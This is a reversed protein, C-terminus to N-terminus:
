YNIEKLWTKLAVVTKKSVIKEISLRHYVNLLNQTLTQKPNIAKITTFVTKETDVYMPVELEFDKMYDHPNRKQMVSAPGFGAHYGLQWMLPQAVFGKLIDVFRISVFPPLFLLPFLEKTFFTNQTNIPCIVNEGLVLPSNKAFSIKKNITLRYIADVDPEEDALFQWIGIKQKKIEIRVKKKELLKNLPYGRPWVFEDTFYKYVNVFGNSVITKFEGEFTVNKGWDDYPINDDDTDVIIDAGERIAYLYGINKRSYSDWPLDKALKPFLRMQQNPSLYTASNLKWGHPTKRDGVVILQWDKHKAFKKVAETPSFITTIVIFKKM